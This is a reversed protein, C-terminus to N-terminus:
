LILLLLLLLVPLALLLLLLWLIAHWRCIIRCRPRNRSRRQKINCTSYGCIVQMAHQFTEHLIVLM